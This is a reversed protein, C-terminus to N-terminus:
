SDETETSLPVGLVSSLIGSSEVVLFECTCPLTPVPSKLFRKSQYPASTPGSLRTTDNGRSGKQRKPATPFVCRSGIVSCACVMAWVKELLRSQSGTFLSVAENPAKCAWRFEAEPFSKLRKWSSSCRVRFFGLLRSNSNIQMAAMSFSIVKNGLAACRLVFRPKM